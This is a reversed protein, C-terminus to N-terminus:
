RAQAEGLAREALAAFARLAPVDFVFEFGDRNSGCRFEIDEGSLRYSLPCGARIGVWSSVTLDDHM